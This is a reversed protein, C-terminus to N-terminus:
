QIICDNGSPVRGSSLFRVIEQHRKRKAIGIPTNGPKHVYMNVNAGRAVLLRVMDLKGTQCAMYLPFGGDARKCNVDAGQSALYDVLQLHGAESAYQLPTCRKTNSQENIPVGMALFHAVVPGHGRLAALHIPLLGLHTVHGGRTGQAKGTNGKAYINAGRQDLFQVLQLAGLQAALHLATVGDTRVANM